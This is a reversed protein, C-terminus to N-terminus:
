DSVEQKTWYDYREELIGHKNRTVTVTFVSALDSSLVSMSGYTESSAAQMLTRLAALATALSLGDKDSMSISIM